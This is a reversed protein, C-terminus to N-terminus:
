PGPTSPLRPGEAPWTKLELDIGMHREAFPLAKEFNVIGASTELDLTNVTGLARGDATLVPSGSDGPVAALLFHAHTRWDNAERVIGERPKLEDSADRAPSNGYTLVVDGPQPPGALGTPGGYIRMSPHVEDRYAPDVEVLAFDNKLDGPERDIARTPDSLLDDRDTCTETGDIAGWACYALTGRAQGNALTVTEGITRNDVCHSNTGVYLSSNDPTSFVFNATCSADVVKAGPRLAAEDVPPWGPDVPGETQSVDAAADEYVLAFGGFETGVDRADSVQFEYTGAVLEDLGPATLFADSTGGISLTDFTAPSGAARDMVTGQPSTIELAPDEGARVVAPDSGQQYVGVAAPPVSTEFTGEVAQGPQAEQAPGLVPTTALPQLSGAPEDPGVVALHAGETPAQIQLAYSTAESRSPLEVRAPTAEVTRQAVQEGDPGWLTFAVQEGDAPTLRIAEATAPTPVSTPVGAPVLTPDATIELQGSYTNGDAGESAHAGIELVVPNNEPSSLRLDIETPGVTNTIKAGYLEAAGTRLNAHVDGTTEQDYDLEGTVRVPVGAPISPDLPIEHHFSDGQGLSSAVCGVPLCTEEPGFTGEIPIMEEVAEAPGAFSLEHPVAEAPQESANAVTDSAGPEREDEALTENPTQEDSADLSGDPPTADDAAQTPQTSASSLEEGGELCGALMLGAAVALALLVLRRM